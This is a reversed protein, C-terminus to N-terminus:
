TGLWKTIERAWTFVQKRVDPNKEITLPEPLTLGLMNGRTIHRNGRGRGVRKRKMFNWGFKHLLFESIAHKPRRPSSLYGARGFRTAAILDARQAASAGRRMSSMYTDAPQHKADLYLEVEQDLCSEGTEEPRRTIRLFFRGPEFSPSLPDKVWLNLKISDENEGEGEGEGENEGENEGEGEGEDAGHRKPTLKNVALRYVYARENPYQYQRETTEDRKESYAQAADALRPELEAVSEKLENKRKARLRDGSPLRKEPRGDHTSQEEDVHNELFNKINKQRQPRAAIAKMAQVISVSVVECGGAKIKDSFALLAATKMERENDIYHIIRPFRSLMKRLVLFHAIAGYSSRVPYGGLGMVPFSNLRASPSTDTNVPAGEWLLHIKSQHCEYFFVQDRNEAREEDAFTGPIFMPTFALAFYSGNYDTTTLLCPLQETRAGEGGVYISIQMIDSYLRICGNNEKYHDSEVLQNSQLEMLHRGSVFKCTDALSHLHKYYHEAYCNIKFMMASPGTNSYVDMMFRQIDAPYVPKKETEVDEEDEVPAPALRKGEHLRWTAGVAFRKGCKKCRACSDVVSAVGYGNRHNEHKRDYMHEYMNVRYNDCAENPCYDHLLNNKLVYLFMAEVAENSYIKRELGCEKCIFELSYGKKRVKYRTNKGSTKGYNSCLTNYCFNVDLWGAEGGIRIGDSNWPTPDFEPTRLAEPFEEATGQEKTKFKVKWRRKDEKRKPM